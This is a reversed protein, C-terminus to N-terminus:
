RGTETGTVLYITHLRGNEDLVVEAYTSLMKEAKRLWRLLNLAPYQKGYKAGLIEIAEKNSTVRADTGRGAFQKPLQLEDYLWKMLQVPSSASVGQMVQEIVEVKKVKKKKEVLRETLKEFRLRKKEVGITLKERFKTLVERDVLVGRESLELALHFLPMTYQFFYNLM